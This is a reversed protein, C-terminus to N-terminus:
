LYNGDYKRSDEIEFVSFKTGIIVDAKPSYLNWVIPLNIPICFGPIDAIDRDRAPKSGNKIWTESM